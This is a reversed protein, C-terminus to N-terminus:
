PIEDRSFVSNYWEKRQMLVNDLLEYDRSGVWDPRASQIYTLFRETGDFVGEAFESRSVKANSGRGGRVGTDIFLEIKHESSRVVLDWPNDDPQIKVEEGTLIEPLYALCSIFFTWIWTDFYGENFAEVPGEDTLIRAEMEWESLSVYSEIPNRHESERFEIKM